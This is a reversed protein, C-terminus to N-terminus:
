VQSSVPSQTVCLGTHQAALSLGPRSQKGDGGSAEQGLIIDPVFNAKQPQQFTASVEDQMSSPDNM